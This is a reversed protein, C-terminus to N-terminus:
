QEKLFRDLSVIVIRMKNFAQTFGNNLDITREHVRFHQILCNNAIDIRFM